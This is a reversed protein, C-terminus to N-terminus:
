NKDQAQDAQAAVTALLARAMGRVKGARAAPVPVSTGQM